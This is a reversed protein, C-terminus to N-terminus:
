LKKSLFDEQKHPDDQNETYFRMKSVYLEKWPVFDRQIENTLEEKKIKQEEADMIRKEEKEEWTMEAVATETVAPATDEEKPVKHFIMIDDSILSAYQSGGGYVYALDAGQRFRFINENQRDILLIVKGKDNNKDQFRFPLIGFMTLMELPNCWMHQKKKSLNEYYSNVCTVYIAKAVEKRKMNPGVFGDFDIAKSDDILDDIHPDFADPRVDSDLEKPLKSAIFDVAKAFVDPQLMPFYSELYAMEPETIMSKIVLKGAWENRSLLDNIGLLAQWYHTLEHLFTSAARKLDGVQYPPVHVELNEYLGRPNDPCISIRRDIADVTDDRYNMLGLERFDQESLTLKYLIISLVRQLGTYNKTLDKFVLKTAMWQKWGAQDTWPAYIKFFKKVGFCIKFFQELHDKNYKKSGVEELLMDGFKLLSPLDDASYSEKEALAKIDEDSLADVKQQLNRKTMETIIYARIRPYSIDIVEAGGYKEDQYSGFKKKLKSLAKTIHKEQEQPIFTSVTSRAPSESARLRMLNIASQRNKAKALSSSSQTAPSDCMSFVMLFLYFLIPAKKM